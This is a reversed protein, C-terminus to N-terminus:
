VTSGTAHSTATRLKMEARSLETQKLEQHPTGPPHERTFLKEVINPATVDVDVLARDINVDASQAFGDACRVSWVGDSGDSSRAVGEILREDLL